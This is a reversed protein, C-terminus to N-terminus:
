FVDKIGFLREIFWSISDFCLPKERKIGFDDFYM